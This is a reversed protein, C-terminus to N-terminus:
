GTKSPSANALPFIKMAVTSPLMMQRLSLCSREAFHRFLSEFTMDIQGTVGNADPMRSGNEQPRMRPGLSFDAVGNVDSTGGMDVGVANYIGAWTDGYAVRPVVGRKFESRWRRELHPTANLNGKM